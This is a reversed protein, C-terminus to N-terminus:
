DVLHHNIPCLLLRRFVTLCSLVYQVCHRLVPHALLLKQRTSSSCLLPCGLTIALLSWTALLVVQVFGLLGCSYAFSLWQFTCSMKCPMLGVLHGATTSVASRTARRVGFRARLAITQLNLTRRRSAFDFVFFLCPRAGRHM